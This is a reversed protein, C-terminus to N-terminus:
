KVCAPKFEMKIEHKGPLKIISTKGCDYSCCILRGKKNRATCMEPVLRLSISGAKKIKWSYSNSGVDKVGPYYEGGALWGGKFGMAPNPSLIM